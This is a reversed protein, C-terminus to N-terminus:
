SSRPLPRHHINGAGRIEIARQLDVGPEVGVDGAAQEARIRFHRRAHRRVRPAVFHHHEAPILLEIRLVLHRRAVQRQLLKL